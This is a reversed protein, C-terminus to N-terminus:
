RFYDADERMRGNRKVPRMPVVRSINSAEGAPTGSPTAWTAAAILAQKLQTWDHVDHASASRTSSSTASIRAHM